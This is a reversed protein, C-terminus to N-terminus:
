EDNPAVGGGILSGVTADAEGMLEPSPNSQPSAASPAPAAIARMARLPATNNETRRRGPTEGDAQVPQRGAVRVARHHARLSSNEEAGVVQTSGRSQEFFPSQLRRAARYPKGYLLFVMSRM